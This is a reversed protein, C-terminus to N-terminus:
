KLQPLLMKFILVYTLLVLLVLAPLAILLICLWAGRKKRPLLHRLMVQEGEATQQHYGTLGRLEREEPPQPPTHPKMQDRIVAIEAFGDARMKLLEADKKLMLSCSRSGDDDDDWSLKVAGAFPLKMPLMKAEPNESVLKVEEVRARYYKVNRSRYFLLEKIKSVGFAAMSGLILLAGVMLGAGSQKRFALLLM